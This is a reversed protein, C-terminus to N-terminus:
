ALVTSRPYADAPDLAVNVLAPVGCAFARQLAPGLEDAARVLEAHGGLSRAVEDYRTGPTLEAVVHYGYPARMQEKELGWGDNNGVIIVAPIRKRKM